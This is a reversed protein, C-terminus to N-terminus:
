TRSMNKSYVAWIVMAPLMWMAYHYFSDMSFANIGWALLAAAVFISNGIKKKVFLCSGKRQTFLLCFGKIYFWVYFLAGIVGFDVCQKIWENMTMSDFSTNFYNEGTGVFFSKLDTMWMQLAKLDIYLRFSSSAIDLHFWYEGGWLIIASIGAIGGMLYISRYKRRKYYDCVLFGIVLGLFSVRSGSLFVMLIMLIASGVCKKKGIMQWVDPILLFFIIPVAYMALVNPDAHFGGVRLIGNRYRIGAWAQYFASRGSFLEYYYCTTMIVSSCWISAAFTRRYKEKEFMLAQLVIAAFMISVDWIIKYSTSHIYACFAYYISWIIILRVSVAAKEHSFARKKICLLYFATFLFYVKIVAFVTVDTMFWFPTYLLRFNLGLILFYFSLDMWDRKRLVILLAGVCFFCSAIAVNGWVYVSFAYIGSSLLYVLLLNDNKLASQQYFHEEM